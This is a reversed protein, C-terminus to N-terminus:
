HMDRERERNHRREEKKVNAAQAAMKLEENAQQLLDKAKQAHGEMDFENAKQAEFIKVFAKQILDQAEALNPHRRMNIDEMPKALLVAGGAFMLMSFMSVLVISRKM